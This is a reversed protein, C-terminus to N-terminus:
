QAHWWPFMSGPPRMRWCNYTSMRARGCGERVGYERTYAVGVVPATDGRAVLNRAGALALRLVSIAADGFTGLAIAGRGIGLPIGVALLGAVAGM